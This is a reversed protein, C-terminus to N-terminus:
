YATGVGYRYVVPERRPGCICGAAGGRYANVIRPGPGVDASAAYAYRDDPSYPAYPSPGLPPEAFRAALPTESRYSVGGGNGYLSQTATSGYTGQGGYTGAQGYTGGQGYTGQGGYTGADGYTGPAGYGGYAGYGLGYGGGFGGFGGVFGRGAAFRRRGEGFGGFRRAAGYRLGTNVHGYLAAGGITLPGLGRGYAPVGGRPFGGFRSATNTHGYASFYPRGGSGEHIVGAVPPLGRGGGFRAIGPHFGGAGSGGHYGGFGGHFGGAPRFAPGGGHGGGGAWAGCIPLTSLALAVAVSDITRPHM